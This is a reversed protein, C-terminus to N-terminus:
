DENPLWEEYRGERYWNITERLGDAISHAPEFGLTQKALGIDSCLRKVEGPRPDVHIPKVKGELGTLSILTNALDSITIEKGTGFNVAQGIMKEYNNLILDYAHVADEIYMYDRTQNGDGYIVPPLGSLLRKIFKPIVATYGIRAQRPGYTNFCRVIVIPLKYTSYYGYCLRDAAAKSAAYP